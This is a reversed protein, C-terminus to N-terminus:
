IKVSNTLVFFYHEWMCPIRRVDTGVDKNLGEENGEDNRDKGYNVKVM